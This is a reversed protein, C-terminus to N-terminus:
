GTVLSEEVVAIEVATLGYQEYVLADIKVDTAEIGQRVLRKEQETTTKQLYEHLSVMQNVLAVIRTHIKKEPLRDFDPTIVPFKGLHAPSLNYGRDTLPCTHRIIFHGLTSNLIAILVPDDRPIALLSNTIAFSGAPDYAFAPSHRFAPFIIKPITHVQSDTELSDSPLYGSTERDQTATVARSCEELYDNLARCKRLRNRNTEMILFRSPGAPAYRRIDAARLLPSFFRRCRAEKALRDQTQRDVILPNNRERHEGAVFEGMIYHDLPTAVARIRALLDTARTDELIWGTDGLSRQDLLFGRTGSIREAFSREGAAVPPVTFPRCPPRNSLHLFCIQLDDGQVTRIRGTDAVMEIQRTLLLRRFERAHRSRLFTKPVLVGMAGGARLLSLGKEIFYGYLGASLAYSAYHTQFYAERAQVPFPRYPPPAGIIADFGGGALVVPFASEWDFPNVRRREDANFPHVPRGAFYDPAILSNGCRINGTISKAIERMQDPMIVGSGSKRVSDICALLLVFRAASVSEPDIDTGYISRCARGPIDPLLANAGTKTLFRYVALLFIGAGCAPDLIAPVKGPPLEQLIGRLTGNVVGEVVRRPPVDVSGTYLVASKGIKKVRCGGAVELRTGVLHELVAALEETQIVSLPVPLDVSVMRGILERLGPDPFAPLPRPGDTGFDFFLEPTLGADSSAKGMRKGIRDSEALLSLTDPAIFGGDQGIRLFLAQLICSIVACNLDPDPVIVQEQVLRRSLLDRSTELSLLLSRGEPSLGGTDTVTEGQLPAPM